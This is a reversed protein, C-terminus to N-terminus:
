PNNLPKKELWYIEIADGDKLETQFGGNVGNVKLAIIGEPKSFDMHAPELMDMLYYPSGSRKPDFSQKQGNIQFVLKERPESKPEAPLVAAQIASLDQKTVVDGNELNWDSSAPTGNVLVTGEIRAHKILDAVTYIRCTTIEDDPNLQQVASGLVGNVLATTGLHLEQNEWLIQGRDDWSVVDQLCSSGDRGGSAPEFTIEDGAEVLDSIGAPKDNIRLVAPVAYDGPIVTRKGDVKIILNQGSRSMMHKYGYGNMMLVDRATLKGSRFLKAHQGNLKIYFSDNILNLAASIAIGLPTSYEPDKIDYEKSMAHISFNNGGLAVRNLDMELYQAVYERVKTLKCGGGVLFVASPTGGNVEIIKEAIQKCLSQITLDATEMVESPSITHELGLVDTYTLTEEQGTGIKLAEATEFDILYTKMLSETVEDGAITAMTYGCISGDRAAAIDSTGAGIDVLVLNLLRLNKPIAANMSAIPELTMGAVEMGAKQMSTYLSNVVEGPLFTSIVEAVLNQGKHGLLSSIPYHDLYYQCVSYGVLYFQRDEEQDNTREFEDESLTLAGTELNRIIEETIVQQGTLDMTYSTHQTRLARGAAAVYVQDLSFKVKDELKKKVEAAVKAVQNIDEIQGDIMARIDHEEKVIATVCLKGQEVKGVMGIISRTGIDMAFVCDDPMKAYSMAEKEAGM